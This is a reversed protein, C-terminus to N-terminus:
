EIFKFDKLKFGISKKAKQEVKIRDHSEASVDSVGEEFLTVGEDLIKDDLGLELEDKVRM